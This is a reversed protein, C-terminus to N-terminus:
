GNYFSYKKNKEYRNLLYNLMIQIDIILLPKQFDLIKKSGDSYTFEVQKKSISKISTFGDYEAM